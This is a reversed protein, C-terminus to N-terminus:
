ASARTTGRSRWLLGAAIALAVLAGLLALLWSRTGAVSRSSPFVITLVASAPADQAVYRQLTKGDVTVPDRAALGAGVARAGTEELLVELVGTAEMLPITLSDHAPPLEYRLALQKLGPAFPAVVAAEGDAIVVAAAAIDGADRLVTAKVAGDPLAIRWTAAKATGGVLTRLSDNGLEFVDVVARNGTTSPASIALHRGRVGIDIGTSATDFVTIEAREGETAASGLPATFYAVGGFLVAAFYVAGEAGFPRFSFRYRGRADSKVSDIAGASDSGVRHLTVVTAAVPHTDGGRQVVVRGEVIRSHQAPLATAILALLPLARSLRVLLKSAQRRRRLCRRGCCIV